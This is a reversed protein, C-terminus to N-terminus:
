QSSLKFIFKNLLQRGPTSLFVSHLSLSSVGDKRWDGHEILVLLHLVSEEDRDCPGDRKKMLNM